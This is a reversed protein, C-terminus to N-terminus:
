WHGTAGAVETEANGECQWIVGGRCFDQLEVPRPDWGVPRRRAILQARREKILHRCRRRRGVRQRGCNDFHWSVRDHHESVAPQCHEGRVARREIITPDISDGEFQSPDAILLIENGVLWVERAPRDLLVAERILEITRKRM